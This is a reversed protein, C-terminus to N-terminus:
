SQTPARRKGRRRGAAPPAPREGGDSRLSATGTEEATEQLEAATAAAKRRRLGTIPGELKALAEVTARYGEELAPEYARWDRIEIWDLKPLILLDTAQRSSEIDARTTITASRMLISVIPPGNRWDGSVIWRWWSKPNELVKPDVGRSRSVDVGVVVGQHWARMVDAPFPRMVAGDVLVMNEMVVPPLVGPLSVSARLAQRLLGRRHVHYGGSTINASVCFFPRWLDAIQVDGFHEELRADVRSGGAMSIIPPRIDAVPSSDVFAKRIRADLEAQSWGLALGAGVIGGMSAGGIFDFPTKAERLAEVAGVHAYARAGGGSLVLGVSSGTLVRAIRAADAREGDKVHFWRAANVAKLWGETGIPRVTSPEHILILDVLRHEELPDHEWVGGAPPADEGRGVIFLRDVQRACLRAWAAESKEAVYLVLDHAAEVGSYWEAASRLAASGITEVSLGQAAIETQLRDVFPRIPQDCVGIFGFVTPQAGDDGGKQRARLIMLRALETMVEPQSRAAEFFAERPLAQVDCDRLAVVTASHPTDAIMAMEGVPEGPRIVGLFHPEQGEDRKFVGLRGTRLLYLTDAPDGASFLRAGGPLSFFSAERGAAKDFLSALANQLPDSRRARRM